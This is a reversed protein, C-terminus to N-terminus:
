GVLDREDRHELWARTGNSYIVLICALCQATTQHSTWVAGLAIASACCPIVAELALVWSPVRHDEITRTASLAM